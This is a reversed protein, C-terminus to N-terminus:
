GVRNREPMRRDRRRHHVGGTRRGPTLQGSSGDRSFITVTDHAPSTAYVFKGDASIALNRAGLVGAPGDTCGNTGNDNVCGATAAKQTLDGTAPNRDFVAIGSAPGESAVYVNKGDPSVVVATAALLARAAACSDSGDANVCGDTAASLSLAGTGPDRDFVVVANDDPAAVYVNAGDPSVAVDSAGSLERANDCDTYLIEQSDFCSTSSPAQALSGDAQPALIAVSDYAASAVYANKEDPSFAIATSGVLGRGDQCQGGFGTETVCGAPGQVQGLNTAALANTATSLALLLPV